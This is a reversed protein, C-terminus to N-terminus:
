FAKLLHHSRVGSGLAKSVLLRHLQKHQMKEPRCRRWLCRLDNKCLNFLQFHDSTPRAIIVRNRQGHKPFFSSTPKPNRAIPHYLVHGLCHLWWADNKQLKDTKGCDFQDSLSLGAIRLSILGIYKLPVEGLILIASPDLCLFQM